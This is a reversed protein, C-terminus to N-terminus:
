GGVVRRCAFVLAHPGDQDLVALALDRGFPANTIPQWM